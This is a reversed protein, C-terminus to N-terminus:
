MGKKIHFREAHNYRFTDPKIDLTELKWLSFFEFDTYIRYPSKKRPLKNLAYEIYNKIRQTFM